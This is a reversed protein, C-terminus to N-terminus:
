HPELVFSRDPQGRTYTYADLELYVAAQPRLETSRMVTTKDIPKHNNDMPWAGGWVGVDRM